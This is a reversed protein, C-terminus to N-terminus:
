EQALPKNLPPVLSPREKAPKKSTDEAAAVPVTVWDDGASVGRETVAADTM